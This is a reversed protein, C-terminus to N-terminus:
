TLSNPSQCFSIKGQTVTPLHPTGKYVPKGHNWYLTEMVGQMGRQPRHEFTLDRKVLEILNMGVSKHDDRSTYVYFTPKETRSERALKRPCEMKIIDYAKNGSEIRDKIIHWMSTTERNELKLIWRGSAEMSGFPEPAIVVNLHWMDARKLSITNYCPGDTCTHSPKGHNWYIRKLDKNLLTGAHKFKYNRTDVVTKYMIDRKVIQILKFGVGEVNRERTYVCIVGSTSPGPGEKTPDYRMTTCKASCGYLEGRAMATRIKKWTTDLKDYYDFM